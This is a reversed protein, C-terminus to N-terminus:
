EYLNKIARIAIDVDGYVCLDRFEKCVEGDGDGFDIQIQDAYKMLLEKRTQEKTM